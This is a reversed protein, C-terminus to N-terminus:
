SHQAIMGEINIIFINFQVTEFVSYLLARDLRLINDKYKFKQEIM